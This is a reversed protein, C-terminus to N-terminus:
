AKSNAPPTFARGSGKRGQSRSRNQASVPLRLRDLNFKEVLWDAGTDFLVKGKDSEVLCSFGWGIRLGPDHEHNDYITTIKLTPM